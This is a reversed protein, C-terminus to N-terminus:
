SCTDALSNPGIAGYIGAQTTTIPGGLFSMGCPLILRRMTMAGTVMSSFVLRTQSM